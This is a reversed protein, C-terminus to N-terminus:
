APLSQLYLSAEKFYGTLWHFTGCFLARSPGSLELFHNSLHTKRDSENMSTVFGESQSLNM